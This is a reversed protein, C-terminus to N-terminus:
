KMKRILEVFRERDLDIGTEKVAMTRKDELIYNIVDGCTILTLDNQEEDDAEIVVSYGGKQLKMFCVKLSNDKHIEDYLWEFIKSLGFKFDLEEKKDWMDKIM